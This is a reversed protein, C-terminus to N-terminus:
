YSGCVYNIQDVYINTTCVIYINRQNWFLNYDYDVQNEGVSNTSPLPSVDRKARDYEFFPSELNSYFRKLVRAAESQYSEKTLFSSSNKISESLIDLKNKLINAERSALDLERTSM